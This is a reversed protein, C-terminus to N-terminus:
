VTLAQTGAILEIVGDEFPQGTVPDESASGGLDASTYIAVGSAGIRPGVNHIADSLAGVMAAADQFTFGYARYGVRVTQLPITRMRDVSLRVLVVFRNGYTKRGTTEDTTVFSDGPAPQGGRVRDTWDEALAERIEVLLKGFPDIM